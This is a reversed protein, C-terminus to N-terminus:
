RLASHPAALDTGLGDRPDSRTDQVLLLLAAALVLLVAGVGWAAPIGAAAAVRTLGLSAILGGSQQSLSQVSVM